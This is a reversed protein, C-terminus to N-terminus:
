EQRDTHTRTHTYRHVSLGTKASIHVKQAGELKTSSGTHLMVYLIKLADSEILMALPTSINSFM